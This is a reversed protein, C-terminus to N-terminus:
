MQLSGCTHNGIGVYETNGKNKRKNQSFVFLIMLVIKKIVKLNYTQMFLRIREFEDWMFNKRQMKM